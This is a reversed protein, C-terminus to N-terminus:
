AKAQNESACLFAVQVRSASPHAEHANDGPSALASRHCLTHRRQTQVPSEPTRKDTAGEM